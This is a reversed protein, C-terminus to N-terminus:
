EMSKPGYGDPLVTLEEAVFHLGAEKLEFWSNLKSALKQMFSFM